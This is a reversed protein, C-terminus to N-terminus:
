HLNFFAMLPEYVIWKANVAMIFDAHAYDELYQVALNVGDHGDVVGLFHRVDDVDSLVDAKGYSLFLPFDVPIASMDYTPPTPQGYHEMNKGQDDYDYKTITGRRMTQALHVMNKTSTPQPEHDLAVQVSSSNLCCNKGTITSMLDYCNIGPGQCIGKLLKKVEPSSPNFEAVGLWYLQEGLYIRAAGQMFASPIKDLYAIPSLLAASRLMDILSQESFSALAILTGLSHGVYHMKKQGTQQYVYGVTAPLDFTVLEDWSWDWFAPDNSSLSTHGRSYITGRTNAIWVDYGNEALIYGLSEEPSNLLWSVGDVLLGHQLFVPVKNTGSAAKSRGSPIRQMSLIYGDETTVMHDECPYGYVEVRSKCTSEDNDNSTDHLTTMLGNNGRLLEKRGVVVSGEELRLFLLLLAFVLPETRAM